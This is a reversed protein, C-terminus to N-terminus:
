GNRFSRRVERAGREDLERLERAIDASAKRAHNLDERVEQLHEKWTREFGNMSGIREDEPTLRGERIALRIEQLREGATDLARACDQLEEGVSAIDDPRSLRTPDPTSRDDGSTVPGAIAKQQRPLQEVLQNDLRNVGRLAEVLEDFIAQVTQRYREAIQDAKGDLMIAVSGHRDTFELGALRRLPGEVQNLVQQDAMRILDTAETPPEPERREHDRDAGGGGGGNRDKEARERERREAREREAERHERAAQENLDGVQDRLDQRAQRWRRRTEDLTGLADTMREAQRRVLEVLDSLQDADAELVQGLTGAVRSMARVTPGRTEQPADAERLRKGVDTLETVLDQLKEAGHRLRDPDGPVDLSDPHFRIVQQLEVAM